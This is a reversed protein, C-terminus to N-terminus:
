WYQCIVMCGDNKILWRKVRRRPAVKYYPDAGSPFNMAQLIARRTWPTIKRYEGVVDSIYQLPRPVYHRMRNDMSGKLWSASGVDLMDYKDDALRAWIQEDVVAERHMADSLEDAHRLVAEKTRGEDLVKDWADSLERQIQAYGTVTERGDGDDPVAILVLEAAM